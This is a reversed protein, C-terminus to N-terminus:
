LTGAVIDDIYRPYNQEQLKQISRFFGLDLVNLDMAKAAAVIRPDMPPVHPKANDQQIRVHKTDGAPWKAKIAPIVNDILM